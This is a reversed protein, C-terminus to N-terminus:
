VLKQKQYDIIRGTTGEKASPEADDEPATAATPVKQPPDQNQFGMDGFDLQGRIVGCHHEVMSIRGSGLDKNIFMQTSGGMEPALSVSTEYSVAVDEREGEIPKFILKITLSRKKEPDTNPDMINDGIRALCRDAQEQLEGGFLTALTLKEGKM